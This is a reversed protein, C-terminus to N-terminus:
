ESVPSCMLKLSACPGQPLEGLVSLFLGISQPNTETFCLTKKVFAVCCLLVPSVSGGSWFNLARILDLNRTFRYSADVVLDPILPEIKIFRDEVPVARDWWVAWMRDRSHPLGLELRWRESVIRRCAIGLWMGGEGTAPSCSGRSPAM